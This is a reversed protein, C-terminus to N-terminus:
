LWLIWSINCIFVDNGEWICWRVNGKRIYTVTKRTIISDSIM